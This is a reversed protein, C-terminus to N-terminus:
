ALAGAVWGILGDWSLGFWLTALALAGISAAALAPLAGRAALGPVHETDGRLFLARMLKFYYFLSVVTNLAAVV